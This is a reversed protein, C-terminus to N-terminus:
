GRTRAKSQEIEEETYAIIASLSEPPWGRHKRELECLDEISGARGLSEKRASPSEQRTLTFEEASTGFEYKPWELEMQELWTGRETNSARKTMREIATALQPLDNEIINWVVEQDINMYGHVMANRFRGIKDWPIKPETAKLNAGLRQTSEALTQLVREVARQVLRSRDFTERRNGTYKRIEQISERIHSLWVLDADQNPKM